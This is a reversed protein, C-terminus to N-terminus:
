LNKVYHAVQDFREVMKERGLLDCIKALEPGDGRGTLAIRLPLFLAKGKKQTGTKLAQIIYAVDTGKEKAANLAIEFYENGAEKLTEAVSSLDSARFLSIAWAKADSPFLINDRITEIFQDHLENPVISEVEPKVWSWIAHRETHLIAEKQWHQLQNPDFRAPSRGIRSVAFESGLELLTLFKDQTYHHGLRSLYNLIALPWYGAQRLEEISMSGNRKSLPKGDEGVILPMHGYQPIPLNLAQLILIQRPTNTLHDEGRLAHTVGMLADDVGNCFMFTASQDQKQIIFDGIDNTAFVKPGQILDDFRVEADDPIRFRLTPVIGAQKKKEIQEASLHRCTGSYRPPQGAALQAKRSMSLSQETCFCYYAKDQELLKAYYGEYISVRESQFYPTHEGGVDPGEQWHLGLWALDRKMKDVYEDKSRALDTDEIRLLFHGQKGQAQESQALLVNFLATRLNGLHMLGTPSPCFRTKFTTPTTM